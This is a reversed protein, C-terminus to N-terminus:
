FALRLAFQFSRPGGTQYLTSIGSLQRNLMNTAQGFNAASLSTQITGFNPHNFINFGEGRLQLNLKETLKFERRLAVDVQWVPLGRVQNRGFTGSQSTPPTCFPGKAPFSTSLPACGANAIQAATPVANNLTRGGPYQSGELYFPIGPIINPRVGIMSGDIPNTENRSILDIPLASQARVTTDVSWRGLVAQAIRNTRLNPIDYTAAGTFVHRLDFDANGHLARRQGFSSSDDDLAHSWTYAVLAQLGRSLRRQFRLQLANYNSEAANRTLRLQTFKPNITNLTLNTLQLLRRGESGV